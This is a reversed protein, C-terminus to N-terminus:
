QLEFAAVRNTAWEDAPVWSRLTNSRSGGAQPLPYIPNADIAKSPNAADFPRDIRRASITTAYAGPGVDDDYSSKAPLPASGGRKPTGVQAMSGACIRRLIVLRTM